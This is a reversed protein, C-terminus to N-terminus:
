FVYMKMCFVSGGSKLFESTEVEIVQYGCARLAACVRPAGRQIVVTRGLLATANCAMAGDAEDAPCEIVRAFVRRIIEVGAPELSKPNILVTSEDIACFCTDLHYFRESLLRLRIVPVGFERSVHEYVPPETRHGYGGWILGRGPHWIADGSGEFLRDDPMELVRYGAAAFWAGFAAVERQRSPYRMRSLLCLPRGAPDLGVLTQNACFVMDECGAVPAIQEVRAGAAEFARGVAAWQQAALPHDVRGINGAMHPNKVDIVDFHEPPCMLLRAPLPMTRCGALLNAPLKAPTDIIPHM